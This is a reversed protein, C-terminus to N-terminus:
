PARRKFENTDWDFEGAGEFQSFADETSPVDTLSRYAEGAAQLGEQDLADMISHLEGAARPFTLPVGDVAAVSAAATMLSIVVPDQTEAMKIIRLQESVRLRRVKLVRGFPDAIDKTKAYRDLIEQRSAIASM